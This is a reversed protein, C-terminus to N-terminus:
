RLIFAHQDELDNLKERFKEDINIFEQLVNVKLTFDCCDLDYAEEPIGQDIHISQDQEEHVMEALEGTVIM